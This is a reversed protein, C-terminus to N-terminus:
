TWIQFLKINQHLDMYFFFITKGPAKLSSFPYSFVGFIASWLTSPRPPTSGKHMYAEQSQRVMYPWQGWATCRCPGSYRPVHALTKWGRACNWMQESNLDLSYLTKSLELTFIGKTKVGVTTHPLNLLLSSKWFIKEHLQSQVFGVNPYNKRAHRM